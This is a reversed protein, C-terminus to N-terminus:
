PKPAAAGQDPPGADAPTGMRRREEQTARFRAQAVLREHESREEAMERRLSALQKETEARARAIEELARRQTLAVSRAEAAAQANAAVAAELEVAAKRGKAAGPTVTVVEREFVPAAPLKAATRSAVMEDLTQKAPAKPNTPTSLPGGKQHDRPHAGEGKSWSVDSVQSM